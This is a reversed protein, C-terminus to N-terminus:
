PAQADDRIVVRAGNGADELTELIEINQGPADDSLASGVVGKVNLDIDESKGLLLQPEDGRFDALGRTNDVRVPMSESAARPIMAFPLSSRHWDNRSLL